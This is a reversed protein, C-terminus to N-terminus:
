LLDTDSHPVYCCSIIRGLTIEQLIPCAIHSCLPRHVWALQHAFVLLTSM